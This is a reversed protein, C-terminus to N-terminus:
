AILEEFKVKFKEGYMEEYLTCFRDFTFRSLNYNDQKIL